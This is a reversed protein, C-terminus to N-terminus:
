HVLLFNILIYAVFCVESVERKRSQIQQHTMSLLDKASVSVIEGTSIKKQTNEQTMHRLLNRAGPTPALLKETSNVYVM